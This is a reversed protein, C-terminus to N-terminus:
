TDRPMKEAATTSANLFSWGISMIKSEATIPTM